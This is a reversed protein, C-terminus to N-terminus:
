VRLLIDIVCFVVHYKNLLYKFTYSYDDFLSMVTSQQNKLRYKKGSIKVIPM